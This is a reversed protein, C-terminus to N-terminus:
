PASVSTAAEPEEGAAWRRLAAGDRRGELAEAVALGIISGFKFAHGSCASVICGRGRLEVIFREDPAVTYFCVRTDAVRYEEFRRLRDRCLDLVAHTEAPTATRDGDPDGRLSFRHDGVKLRTGRVPPVLYFGADADIDLVMPARQWLPALAPPPDLYVLVQRSARVRDRLEPLLRTAWVGAAVVIRDAEVSRGDALQLRAREVDVTAVQDQAHMRVGRGGLHRALAQLIRDALLVGGSDLHLARTLGSTEFLPELDAPALWRVPQGLAGAAAASAVAWQEDATALVLTGTPAYLREGVDEWVLEWARYAEAVMRTYGAREGYAYRILRHQDFSSGRPNPIPDQDFLEVEHGARALAWASSLGMVGGGVVLVRMLVSSM